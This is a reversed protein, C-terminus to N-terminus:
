STIHMSYIQQYIVVLERTELLLSNKVLYLSVSLLSRKYATRCYISIKIIMRATTARRM